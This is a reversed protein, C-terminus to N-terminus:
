ISGMGKHRNSARAEIEFEITEGGKGVCMFQEM